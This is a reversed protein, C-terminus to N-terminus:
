REKELRINKRPRYLVWEFNVYDCLIDIVSYKSSPLVPININLLRAILNERSLPFNQGISNRLLGFIDFQASTITWLLTFLVLKASSHKSFTKMKIKGVVISSCFWNCILEFLSCLFCIFVDLFNFQDENETAKKIIHLCIIAKILFSIWFIVVSQASIINTVLKGHGYGCCHANNAM